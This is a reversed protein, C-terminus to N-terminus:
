NGLVDAGKPPAFKFQGADIKPNREFKGFRVLTTQGFNDRLEMVVLADHDFGLRMSEFTGEKGRPLAELWEMGDKIGANKLIFFKEIENSGALLAAPSSGLAQDLEKVTVQNLEKDYVWLKVGDGVILQEYPKAYVWRFKGPRAFQMTGSAEQTTHQNRDLVKQEFNARASQTQQVFNKLRDIGSADACVSFFTLAVIFVIRSIMMM